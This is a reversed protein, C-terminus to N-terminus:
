DIAKEKMYDPVNEVDASISLILRVNNQEMIPELRRVLPEVETVSSNTMRLFSDVFITHIDFDGAILGVLFGYIADHNNLAFDDTTVLRISHKLNFMHRTNDDVFVVKGLADNVIGNAMDVMKKTKGSGKVGCVFGIM